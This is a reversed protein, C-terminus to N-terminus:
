FPVLVGPQAQPKIMPDFEQQTKSSFGALRLHRQSVPDIIIRHQTTAAHAVRARDDVRM